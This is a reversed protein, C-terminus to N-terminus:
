DVRDFIPPIESLFLILSMEGVKPRFIPVLYSINPWIEAKRSFIDVKLHFGTNTPTSNLALPTPLLILKCVMFVWGYNICTCFQDLSLM